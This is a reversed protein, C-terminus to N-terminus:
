SRALPHAHGNAKLYLTKDDENYGNQHLAIDILKERVQRNLRAPVNNTVVCYPLNNKLYLPNNKDPRIIHDLNSKLALDNDNMEFDVIIYPADEVDIRGQEHPTILWYEDKQPAYHLATSFLKILRDRAIETGDHFWQGHRNILIKFDDERRNHDFFKADM